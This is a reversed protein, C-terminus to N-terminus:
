DTSYLDGRDADAETLRHAQHRQCLISSLSPAVNRHTEISKASSDTKRAAFYVWSVINSFIKIQVSKVSPNADDRGNQGWDLPQLYLAFQKEGHQVATLFLSLEWSRDHAFLALELGVTLLM